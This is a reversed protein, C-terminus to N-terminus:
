HRDYHDDHGDFNRNHDHDQNRDYGQNHDYNRDRGYGQDYGDNRVNGAARSQVWVKEFRNINIDLSEWPRVFVNDNYIMQPRRRFMGRNNVRYVEISHRGPRLNDMVFGNRDINYQRGDVVVQVFEDSRSTISVKGNPRPQEAAFSTISFLIAALTFIKKM